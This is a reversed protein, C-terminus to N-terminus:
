TGDRRGSNEPGTFGHVVRLSAGRRGKATTPEHEFEELLRARTDKLLMWREVDRGLALEQPATLLTHQGIARLYERVTDTPEDSLEREYAKLLAMSEESAVSVHDYSQRAWLTRDPGM